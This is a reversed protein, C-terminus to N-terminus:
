RMTYMLQCSPKLPRPCRSTLKQYNSLRYSVIEGGGFGKLEEVWMVSVKGHWIVINFM